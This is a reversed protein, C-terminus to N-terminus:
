LVGTPTLVPVRQWRPRLLELHMRLLVEERERRRDEQVERM